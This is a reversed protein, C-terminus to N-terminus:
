LRSPIIGYNSSSINIIESDKSFERGQLISIETRDTKGKLSIEFLSEGDQLVLKLGRTYAGERKVNELVNKVPYLEMLTAMRVDKTADFDDQTEISLDRKGSVELSGHVQYKDSITQVWRELLVYRQESSELVDVSVLETEWSSRTDRALIQDILNLVIKFDRTKRQTVMVTWQERTESSQVIQFDVVEEVRDLDTIDVVSAARYYSVQGSIVEDRISLQCLKIEDHTLKKDRWRDLVEYLSSQFLTRKRIRKCIVFGSISLPEINVYRILSNLSDVGWFISSLLEPIGIREQAFLIVGKEKAFDRVGTVTIAQADNFFSELIDAAKFNQFRTM